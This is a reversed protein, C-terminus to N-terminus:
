SPCGGPRLALLGDGLGVILRDAITTLAHAPYRVPITLALRAIAPDWLRVTRDTSAGALLTRGDVVVPSLDNVPGTHGELVGAREGTAPDWLAITHGDGAGALLTRGGTRVSCVARVRGPHPGFTRVLTGGAPDWLRVTADSGATVLLTRGDVTVPRVDDVGGTHGELVGAREGTAPDWLRVLRHTTASALLTRGDVDVACVANIGNGGELVRVREGTAPDFLAITRDDGAGALLTRGGTRVSCVARVWGVHHTFTRLAEGTAPDWLRVTRDTSAGALVTRGDVEVSCLGQVQGTPAGPATTRPAAAPDWLRVTGDGSASALLARGGVEVSCVGTVWGTHGRLTRRLEGTAPDWLRVMTDDDSAGALLDRGGLPVACVDHVWDRLTVTEQGTAPDWLRTPGGASAGALLTRGDVRLSCLGRLRLLGDGLTGTEQGTAPDWLRVVSDYESTSALLTRGNVVVPCLGRLRGAPSRWVLVQEGGAPDWLRVTRDASASALLTRGDVEVPCVRDVGATHGTLTRVPDGGAPDWLRVTSNSGGAALLTRGHVPLACVTRIRGGGPARMALVPEGTAPDWLRVTGDEGGGALLTRGDVPVPCVADVGGAHGELVAEEQQPTVTAWVAQYPARVSARPSRALRQEVETVGFLAARVAPTADIAHPTMRLLRARDRGDATSATAAPPILRRLDAHLLYGADTLLDDIVGGRRAHLPLSRLLYAPATHWGDARGLAAFARALCREDAALSGGAARRNRLADDLAQHYLRFAGGPTEATGNEVLFNAASSRAFRRLRDEAPATGWLAAIAARWLGVTFGPAEAFALATLVDAAPMGDVAPLLSLYEHVAADVTPTFSLDAPDVPRTDHMGHARAILGAVLFNGAALAAIREAVPRGAREDAYPNDPREDGLLRLTALAYAALDAPATYAPADLDVIRAAPGFVTLLDGADDQRRTGVVVRVGLHACTEALPLVIRTVIGRAQDPTTAEDLADIVVAFGGAPRDELVARLAPALDGVQDPVPASAARAIERAVELATKGKAHVACSVSGLPARVADDRPPLAAAIGPDATTVVRGLVASKGAGPSGTVVLVQRRTSGDAVFSVIERLAATRGRFRFGRETDTSVGRARPRWHRGAEPDTRLSWGWAALAGEGAAEVSWDTLLHLKQEPLCRDIERLTLARADGTSQRGQGLLGVVAQYAPSWLAAGSYGAQVPYRSGTDLRVWGYGLAEGVVGDSSNGLLGDPFGFSWWESGVLDGPAPRRLRAALERPVEEDLVLVAVDQTEQWAEAPAVVERVRIRRRMLEDAKPFAVWLGGYGAWGPCAVHASTLVRHTDVLFGSGLPSRDDEGAHVAAVWVDSGPRPGSGSVANM